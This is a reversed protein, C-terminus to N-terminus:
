LRIHLWHLENEGTIMLHCLVSIRAMNEVTDAAMAAVMNVAGMNAGMDAAMNEVTGAATGAATDATLKRGAPSWTECNASKM